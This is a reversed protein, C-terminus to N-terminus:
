LGTKLINKEQMFFNLYTVEIFNEDLKMSSIYMKKDFLLQSLWLIGFVIFFGYSFRDGFWSYKFITFVAFIIIYSLYNDFLIRFKM